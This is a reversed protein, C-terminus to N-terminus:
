NEREKERHGPSNKMWVEIVHSQTSLSRHAWESMGTPSLLAGALWGYPLFYDMVGITNYTLFGTNQFIKITQMRVIIVFRMHKERMTFGFGQQQQMIKGRGHESPRSTSPSTCIACIGTTGSLSHPM